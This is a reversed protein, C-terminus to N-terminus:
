GLRRRELYRGKRYELDAPASYPAQAFAAATPPM